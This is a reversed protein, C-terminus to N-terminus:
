SYLSFYYMWISPGWLEALLCALVIFPGFPVPDKKKKLKLGILLLGFVAGFLSALFLAILTNALGIGLGIFLFLKVDGGGMGEPYLLALLFLIGGGILGGLVYTLLGNPHHMLRLIAIVALGPVIIKNPIRMSIVDSISVAIGILFLILLILAEVTLGFRYVLLLGVGMTVVEGLPYLPSIRSGCHRCKGLNWLYSAVPMLDLPTLTQKCAPCHSRPRVVSMGAPVRMGVVNIFSGIFLFLVSLATWTGISYKMM